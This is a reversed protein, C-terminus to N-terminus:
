SQMMSKIEEYSESIHLPIPHLYSGNNTTQDFYIYSGDKDPRVKIIHEVNVFVKEGEFDTLEIFKAM